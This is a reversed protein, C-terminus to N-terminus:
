PLSSPCPSHLPTYGRDRSHHGPSFWLLDGAATPKWQGLQRRCDTLAPVTASLSIDGVISDLVTQNQRPINLSIEAYADTRSIAEDDAYLFLIKEERRMELVADNLVSVVEGERVQREFFALDLVAVVGLIVIGAVLAGCASTIKGQLSSLDFFIAM